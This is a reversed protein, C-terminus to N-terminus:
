LIPLGCVEFVVKASYCNAYRQM